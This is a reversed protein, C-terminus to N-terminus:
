ISFQFSFKISKSQNQKIVGCIKKLFKQLFLDNKKQFTLTKLTMKVGSILFFSFSTGVSRGSKTLGDVRLVTKKKKTAKGCYIQIHCPYKVQYNVLRSGVYKCLLIARSESCTSYIINVKYLNFVHLFSPFFLLYINEFLSGAPTSTM